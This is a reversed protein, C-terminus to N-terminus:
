QPKISRAKGDKSNRRSGESRQGALDINRHHFCEIQGHNGNGSSDFVTPGSAEDLHWLAVLNDDARPAVSATTLFIFAVAVAVIGVSRSIKM